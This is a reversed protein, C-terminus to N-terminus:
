FQIHIIQLIFLFITVQMIFWFNWIDIMKLEHSQQVSRNFGMMLSTMVLLSTVSGMFRNNFNGVDIYLTLYALLWLLLSQFYIQTIQQQYLHHLNTSFVIWSNHAGEFASISWRLVEFEGAFKPGHYLISHKGSGISLIMNNITKFSLTFSCNQHNFPYIFLDFICEYKGKIKMKQQLKGYQGNIEVDEFSTEQKQSMPQNLVEVNSFVSTEDYQVMGLISNKHIIMNFPTWLTEELNPIHTKKSIVDSNQINLYTIRDDVWYMTMEYTIEVTGSFMDVSNISVVDIKITIDTTRNKLEANQPPTEKSYTSYLKFKSCTTEDSRDNCDFHRDCRKILSICQGNSCTFEKGVKCPSLNIIWSSSSCENTNEPNWHNRGGLFSLAKNELM